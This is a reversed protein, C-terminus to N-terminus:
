GDYLNQRQFTVSIGGWLATARSDHQEGDTHDQDRQDLPGIM